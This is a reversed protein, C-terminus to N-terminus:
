STTPTKGSEPALSKAESISPLAADSSTEMAAQTSIVEWNKLPPFTRTELHRRDKDVEYLPAYTDAQKHYVVVKGWNSMMAFLAPAYALMGAPFFHIRSIGGKGYARIGENIDEIIQAATTESDLKGGQKEADGASVRYVIMQTINPHHAKLYKLVDPAADAGGGIRICIAIEGTKAVQTIERLRRVQQRRDRIRRWLWILAGGFIASFLSIVTDLRSLVDWASM